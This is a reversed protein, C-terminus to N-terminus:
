RIMVMTGSPPIQGWVVTGNEAAYDGGVAVGANAQATFGSAINTISFWVAIRGGAGIGGIQTSDDIGGNARLIGNAGGVFRRCTIYIGGGSGAGAYYAWQAIDMGNASIIGNVTVRSRADVWVLGGGTGGPSDYSNGWGGGSGPLTPANSSGYPAPSGGVPSGGRGGYSGGSKQGGGGPGYGASRSASSGGAYGNCNADMLSNTADLILDRVRFLVSGGNTPNSSVYVTSSAGVFLSNNVTVLAGYNTTGGNTGAAFLGLTSGNTVILNGYCALQPANTFDSCLFYNYYRRNGGANRNTIVANGGVDLRGTSGVILLQNSVTLRFGEAGFRLWVNSLTLEPLTWANLDPAMWQGNHRPQTGDTLLRSDPFYLTGLDGAIGGARMGPLVSFVVNPVAIEAQANTDYLVAIRGGGGNCCGSNYARGGNASVIGNTGAITRCAIWISGGSGGGGGTDVGLEGDASIAGNVTVMGDPANIRVAGGGAGGGLGNGNGAASGPM